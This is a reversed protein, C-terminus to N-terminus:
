KDKRYAAIRWNSQPISSRLEKDKQELFEIYAIGDIIIHDVVLKGQKFKHLETQLEEASGSIMHRRPFSKVSTYFNAFYSVEPKPVGELMHPHKEKLFALLVPEDGRKQITRHLDAMIRTNQSCGRSKSLAEMFSDYIARDYERLWTQWAATTALGCFLYSKIRM